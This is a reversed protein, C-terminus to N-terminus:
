EGLEASLQIGHPKLHQVIASRFQEPVSKSKNSENEKFKDGKGRRANSDNERWTSKETIFYVIEKDPISKFDLGLESEDAYQSFHSKFANWRPLYTKLTNDATNAAKTKALNAELAATEEQTRSLMASFTITPM